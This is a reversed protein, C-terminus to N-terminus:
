PHWDEEGREKEQDRKVQIRIALGSAEEKLVTWLYGWFLMEAFAGVFVVRNNLMGFLGNGQEVRVIYGMGQERPSTLYSYMVLLGFVLSKVTSITMWRGQVNHLIAAKEAFAQIGASTVGTDSSGGDRRGSSSFSTPAAALGGAFVGEVLATMALLLALSALPESPLSFSPTERIHMAEGILWVPASSTLLAPQRLLILSTSILTLTHTLILTHSPLLPM